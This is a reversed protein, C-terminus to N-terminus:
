SPKAISVATWFGGYRSVLGFDDVDLDATFGSASRYRYERPGLKEYGQRFPVLKLSPFRIWAATLDVKQGIKMRGRRIPLSNTVPSAELDVDICGRVSTVEKGGRYWKSGRVMLELGRRKGQLVQQIGVKKTRWVSDTEIHYTVLSTGEKFRRVLTGELIWGSGGKLVTCHEVGPPKTSVWVVERAKMM